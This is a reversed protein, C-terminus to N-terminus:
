READRETLVDTEWRDDPIEAELEVEVLADGFLSAIGIMTSAPVNPPDFLEDRVEHVRAQTERSLHDDLVFYRSMVVDELGGGLDALARQRRELVVRVQGAVEDPERATAGSFRVHRYGHKHTVAAYASPPEEVADSPSEAWTPLLATRRM